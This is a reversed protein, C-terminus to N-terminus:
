AYTLNLQQPIYIAPLEPPPQNKAPSLTALKKGVVTGEVLVIHGVVGVFLEETILTAFLTIALGGQEHMDLQLVRIIVLLFFRAREAPFRVFWANQLLVHSFM